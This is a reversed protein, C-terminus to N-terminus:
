RRRGLRSNLCGEICALMDRLHEESLRYCALGGQRTVGVLQRMRLIRLQQSVIAQPVGLREALAGVHLEGQALIAVLRLRLPHAIAKLMEAAEGAREASDQIRKAM